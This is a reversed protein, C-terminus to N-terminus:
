QGAAPHPQPAPLSRGHRAGPLSVHVVPGQAASPQGRAAVGGVALLLFAFFLPPRLANPHLRLLLLLMM